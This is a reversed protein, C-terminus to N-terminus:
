IYSRPNVTRGGRRVEFHLHTGTSRGTNGMYGVLQGRRVYQGRSVVARSQLHGYYTEFGGTHAIVVVYAPDSGDHPNWGVWAVVGDDAARIATGDGNAIDIGDHFHACGGRPPEWPFGTCGYEQTVYGTTPWSFRGGGDRLRPGGGGGGREREREEAQRRAEAIYDAIQRDLRRNAAAQQALRRRAQAQNQNINRYAAFQRQRIERVRAELGRSRARADALRDQQDRLEAETARAARRLQDTRWRTSATMARLSDLAAQDDAIAQALQADQDGYALNASARSLADTFSGDDVLQELLSTNQSRYADALRAGLLRRRANLEDSGAEIEQELLALTWDLRRLERRLGTRRAQSRAIASAARGIERRIESQDANLGDLQRRTTGLASQAVNEDERLEDLINNQREISRQLEGQRQRAAAIRASLDAAGAPPV